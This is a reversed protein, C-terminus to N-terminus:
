SQKRRRSMYGALALGLALTGLTGPEPLDTPTDPPTPTRTVDRVFLTLNSFAGANGGNNLLRQVWDGNQTSGALITQNDFFWAGSFSGSHMAFVLDLTLDFDALTNTVSWTGSKNGANMTFAFSLPSDQMGHPDSVSGNDGFGGVPTWGSGFQANIPTTSQSGHPNVKGLYKFMDAAELVLHVDNASAPIVVPATVPAPTPKPKPAAQALGASLALACLAASMVLKKVTTNWFFSLQHYFAICPNPLAESSCIKGINVLCYL